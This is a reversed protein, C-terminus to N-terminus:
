NARFGQGLIPDEFYPLRWNDDPKNVKKLWAYSQPEWNQSVVVHRGPPGGFHPIGVRFHDCPFVMKVMAMDFMRLM